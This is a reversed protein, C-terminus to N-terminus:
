DEHTYGDVNCHLDMEYYIRVFWYLVKLWGADVVKLPICQRAIASDSASGEANVSDVEVWPFGQLLGVTLEYTIFHM